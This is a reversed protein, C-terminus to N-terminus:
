IKFIEPPNGTMDALIMEGNKIYFVEFVPNSGTQYISRVLENIEIVKDNIAIDDVFIVEGNVRVYRYDPSTVIFSVNPNTQM